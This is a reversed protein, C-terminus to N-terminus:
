GITDDGNVPWGLMWAHESLEGAVDAFEGLSRALRRRATPTMQVLVDDVLHRRRTMVQDVLRRGAAALEASVIRRNDRSQVRRILRREVLVDCMRTVTSPSVDLSAALQGMTLRNHGDLLVLVRFQALTVDDSAAALSRAALGVLARTASLVTERVEGDQAEESNQV